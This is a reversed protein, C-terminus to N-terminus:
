SLLSKLENSFLMGFAALSKSFGFARAIAISHRDFDGEESIMKPIESSSVMEFLKDLQESTMKAFANRALYQLRFERGFKAKWADEYERLSNPNGEEISKAASIGALVGGYGGTYIGGGTTPKAQGAADGARAIRGEVFQRLTGSCVVPAAMKRIPVANKEDVFRDLAQFTNIGAGAIGIKAIDSGIPIVWTFFGPAKKPDVYVEVTSKDFWTGYVLYLAGQLTDGGGRIYSEYGSCDILVDSEIMDSEINLLASNQSQGIRSVRTGLEIKAGARAAKEALFRDFRSRDMVIVNQRRADIQIEKGSPSFFIARALHNQVINSPPVVGLEAMGKSSVLADCKEPIGIERHEEYVTVQVGREAIIASSLLGAVSAGVVSIQNKM